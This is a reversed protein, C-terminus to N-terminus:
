TPSLGRLGLPVLRPMPRWSKEEGRTATGNHAPTEAPTAHDVQTGGAKMHLLPPPALTHGNEESVEDKRPEPPQLSEPLPASTLPLEVPQLLAPCLSNPNDETQNLSADHNKSQFLINPVTKIRNTATPSCDFDTHTSKPPNPSLNVPIPHPAQEGPSACTSAVFTIDDSSSTELTITSTTPGHSHSRSSMDPIIITDSNVRDAHNTMKNVYDGMKESSGTQCTNRHSDCQPPVLIAMLRNRQRTLALKKRKMHKGKIKLKQIVQVAEQLTGATSVRPGLQLETKLVDTLNALRHREIKEFSFRDQGIDVPCGREQTCNNEFDSSNDTEDSSDVLNIRKPQQIDMDDVICVDLDALGMAPEPSSTLPFLPPTVETGIPTKDLIQSANKPEDPLIGPQISRVESIILDPTAVPLPTTLKTPNYDKMSSPPIIRYTTFKQNSSTADPCAQAPFPNATFSRFGSLNSPVFPFVPGGIVSSPTTPGTKAPIAPKMQNIPILHVLKGNLRPYYNFNSPSEVQRLIMQVPSSTRVQPHLPAPITIRPQLPHVTLSGSPPPRVLIYTFPPGSTSTPASTSTRTTTLDLTSTPTGTLKSTTASMSTVASTSTPASTISLKSTTTSISTSTSTSTSTFTTTACTGDSFSSSARQPELATLPAQKKKTAAVRGTLYAALRNAPHLSGVEGLQIKAVPYRKGNVQIPYLGDEQKLSASLYGATSVGNLFPLGKKVTHESKYRHENRTLWQRPASALEEEMDSCDDAFDQETVECQWAEMPEHMALTNNNKKAKNQKSILVEHHIIGCDDVTQNIPNIQYQRTLFPKNLKDQAMAECLTKLVNDRDEDCKWHCKMFISLRKSAGSEGPLNQNESSSASHPQNSPAPLPQTSTRPQPPKREPHLAKLKNRYKMKCREPKKHPKQQFITTSDHSSRHRSKMRSTSKQVFSRVRACSGGHQTLIENVTSCTYDSSTKPIHIPDLESDQNNRKWLTRVHEAPQSVSDAEKLIYAMKMRKKKKRKSSGHSSPSSDSGDLNKLLVVKQKLCSCGLMCQPRGCHTFRATHALSNCVCGLRCFSNFCAPEPRRPLQIPATPNDSVFGKLTFLSTLAISAREESIFTHHQGSWMASDELDKQRLLSRTLMPKASGSFNADDRNSQLHVPKLKFRKRRELPANCTLPTVQTNEIPHVITPSSKKPKPPEALLAINQSADRLTGFPPYADASDSDFTPQFRRPKRVVKRSVKLQGIPAKARKSPPIFGAILDLGPPSPGQKKLVSSLTRVYSSSTTPLEYVPLLDGPPHSFNTVRQDILKAESELYQDLMDSCFASLNKKPHESSTSAEPKSLSPTESSQSPSFKDKWGKIQTVDTAKGMRSVFSGTAGQLTSLEQNALNRTTGPPPIPLHIGLYQLDISMSADLLNMKLGVEQLVPHIIQQHKMMKVDKRLVDEFASITAEHDHQETPQASHIDAPLAVLQSSAEREDCDTIHLKLAEKSTFSIFLQEEVEELNPKMTTYATDDTKQELDCTTNKRRRLNKKCLVAQAHEPHASAHAEEPADALCPPTPLDTSPFEVGIRLNEEKSFFQVLDAISPTPSLADGDLSSFTPSLTLQLALPSLEGPFPLPHEREQFPLSDVVPPDSCIQVPSQSPENAHIQSPSLSSGLSLNQSTTEFVEFSPDVFPEASPLVTHWKFVSQGSDNNLHLDEPKSTTSDLELSFTAPLHPLPGQLSKPSLPSFGFPSCPTDPLFDASKPESSLASPMHPYHLNTDLPPSLVVSSSSSTQSSCIFTKHNGFQGEVRAKQSEPASKAMVNDNTQSQKSALFVATDQCSLNFSHQFFFRESINETFQDSEGPFSNDHKFNSSLNTQQNSSATGTRVEAVIPSSASKLESKVAKTKTSHKKLFLALAPLPLLRKLSTKLVGESQSKTEGGIMGQVIGNKTDSPPECCSKSSAPDAKQADQSCAKGANIKSNTETLTSSITLSDMSCRTLSIHAERILDGICKEAPWSKCISNKAIKQPSGSPPEQVSNTEPSTTSQLTISSRVKHNALLSKLNEKLPQQHSTVAFENRNSKFKLGLTSIGDERLGKAFPNYDVKLQAFQSNHYTTVAIFETQQFTFTTVNSANLKIDKVVQEMQVVHLRPMYRHMPHLVANGEQDAINSTLKLKYFSVPNQMWHYGTSPSDAHAFPLCTMHREAKGAVQWCTDTWMYCNQDVLQIDMLLVYKRSPQLGSIRFRCYPFMRCGQKSLIMETKCRFFENWMSNNDLIVQIGKHTSKASLLDGQLPKAATHTGDSPGSQVHVESKMTSKKYNGSSGQVFDAGPAVAPSTAGGDDFVMVEQQTKSAM